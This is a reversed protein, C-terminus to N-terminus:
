RDHNYRELYPLCKYSSQSSSLRVSNNGSRSIYDSSPNEIKIQPRPRPPNKWNTSSTKKNFAPTQILRAASEAELSQRSVNRSQRLDFFLNSNSERSYDSLGINNSSNINSGQAPRSTFKPYSRQSEFQRKSYGSDAMKKDRFLSAESQLM